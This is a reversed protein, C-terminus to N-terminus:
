SMNQLDKLDICTRNCSTQFIPNLHERCKGSLCQIVTKKGYVCQYSHLNRHRINTQYQNSGLPRNSQPSLCGDMTPVTQTGPNSRMAMNQFCIRAYFPKIILCKLHVEFGVFPLFRHWVHHFPCSTFSCEYSTGHCPSIEWSDFMPNQCMSSTFFRSM